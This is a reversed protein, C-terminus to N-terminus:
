PKEAHAVVKTKTMREDNWSTYFNTGLSNICVWHDDNVKIYRLEACSKSQRVTGVPDATPNNAPEIVEITGVLEKQIYDVDLGQSLGLMNKPGNSRVCDFENITGEFTVKVKDGPNFTKTM